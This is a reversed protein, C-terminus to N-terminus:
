RVSRYGGEVGQPSLVIQWLQLSRAKFAGACSLLYYRWMRRFREGYKESLEPWARDFNECWRVLTKEYDSGFNHWDEIVFLPRDSYGRRDCSATIQAASPLHANPFIYRDFWPELATGTKADGITHLLFLGDSSILSKIKEMFARYNKPGVHEFMGISVIHDFRERPMDRWDQTRIEVPLRATRRAAEAAQESSVTIGVVRAGYREAAYQAFGGWGCGVDLVRAGPKLGIKRCVLDVKAEQAADLDTAVKWYGCSYNMRKDLMREYLDNGIDYHREGVEFARSRSQLNVVRARVAQWVMGIHMFSSVDIGRFIRYMLEGLDDVDWWGDMYSEGVGLSGEAFVRNFLRRDHIKIDWPRVGDIKVDVTALVERVHDESTM